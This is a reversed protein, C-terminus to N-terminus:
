SKKRIQASSLNSVPPLFTIKKLKKSKIVNKFYSQNYAYREFVIIPYKELIEELNLNNIIWHLRDGGMIWILNQNHNLHTKKLEEATEMSTPFYNKSVDILSIIAKPVNKFAKKLLSVRIKSPSLDAKEYYDSSPVIIINNVLNLSIVKEVIEIHGKHIPSFAGGFFGINKGELKRCNM